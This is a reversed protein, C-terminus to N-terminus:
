DDIFWVKEAATPIRCSRNNFYPFQKRYKAIIDYGKDRWSLPILKLTQALIRWPLSFQKLIAIIAESRILLSAPIDNSFNTKSHSNPHPPPIPNSTSSTYAQFVLTDLPKKQSHNLIRLINEGRRSQLSTYRLRRKKDHKIFFSVARSCLGCDGDFFILAKPNKEIATM